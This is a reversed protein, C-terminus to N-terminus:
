FHIHVGLGTYLLRITFSSLDIQQLENVVLNKLKKIIKERSTALIDCILM